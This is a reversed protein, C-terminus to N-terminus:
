ACKKAGETLARETTWGYKTVRMTITNQKIGTRESWGKTTDTIGRWTLRMCTSKFAAEGKYGQKLRLYATAPLCKYIECWEAVTKSEGNVTVLKVGAVKSFNRRNRAQESDTAWRCNGPEYNGNNDIRDISYSKSPKRGMDELFADFSNKWRECVTIGRGGYNRYATSNPNFCRTKMDTWTSYERSYTEGHTIHAQNSKQQSCAPCCTVKKSRLEYGSAQHTNGCDCKYSWKIDRSATRGVESKVVVNGFRKGSIDIKRSM